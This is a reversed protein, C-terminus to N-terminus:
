DLITVEVDQTGWANAEEKNPMHVDIKKGNIAGGTDAAVADGYGEVHVKSGLPIVNPDVAIVNADPNQSLDKGTATVGSCGECNATYATSAVHITKGESANDGNSEKESSHNEQQAEANDEQNVNAQNDQPQENEQDPAADSEQNDDQQPEEEQQNAVAQDDQAQNDEQDANDQNAAADSEQSADSQAPAHDETQNDTSPEPAENGVVGQVDLFQNVVILDSDLNNWEKLSSVTTGFQQSIESLTDGKQVKYRSQSDNDDIALTQGPYILHTDLDNINKLSQVTTNHNDAINGLTDGKQIEYEQASVSSVATGALLLGAVASM